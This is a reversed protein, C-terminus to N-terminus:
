GQDQDHRAVWHGDRYVYWVVPREGALDRARVMAGPYALRLIAQLDAVSQGEHLAAEAADRFAVDDAPNTVLTPRQTETM